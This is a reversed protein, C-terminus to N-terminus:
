HDRQSRGGTTGRVTPRRLEAHRRVLLRHRHQGEQGDRREADVSLIRRARLHGASPPCSRSEEGLRLEYWRVGGAGAKTAVSHSAVISEHGNVRRYVLRQMIKDGQADLRRETGPQPVCDSLQGDCLYHYPAVAIRVPGVVATKEPKDWDVHFKWAYLGDDEFVKQLQTGGAAIMINPAGPPPLAQGDIDANNLFNVGDIIVCQETAPLGKLM